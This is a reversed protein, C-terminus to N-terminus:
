HGCGQRVPRRGCIRVHCGHQKGRHLPLDRRSAGPGMGSGKNKSWLVNAGVSYSFDGKTDSWKVAADIGQNFVSGMNKYTVFDGTYDGHAADNLGIIDYHM